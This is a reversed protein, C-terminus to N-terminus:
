RGSASAAKIQRRVLRPAVILAGGYVALAVFLTAASSTPVDEVLVKVGVAGLLPYVLWAAERVRPTRGVGALALATAALAVTRITAATGPTTAGSMGLAALWAAGAGAVLTAVVARPLRAHDSPTEARALIAWCLCGALFVVLPQPLVPPQTIPPGVLAGFAATTLGSAFAAAVLYTMAHVTLTLGGTAFVQTDHGVRTGAAWAAVVALAAWWIAPYPVGLASGALILVLAMSTYFHFNRRIGQRRAIFALAVGYCGLGCAIGISVLLGGGIGTTRAVEIAGGFGIILAVTSQVAEFPIVARGRVLTRIAVSTVYAGLLLLQVAVIAAPSSSATRTTVGVGLAIVAVDATFAVPWRLWIWDVTYGIWLTVIGLAIDAVTFPLVIGTAATLALSSAIAGVVTLWAVTQLRTRVAVALTALSIATLALSAGTADMLQFRTVAEWLLPLAITVATGGHFEASLWRGRRAARETAALWTAAYAFGVAVGLGAPWAAAETLARLLYAGGFVMLTRGVLTITTAGDVASVNSDAPDQATVARIDDGAPAPISAARGAADSAADSRLRHESSTEIAAVRAELARMARELDELRADSARRPAGNM